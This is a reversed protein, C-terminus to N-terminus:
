SKLTENLKKIKADLSYDIVKNEVNIKVGALLAENINAELEIETNFLKELNEKITKLENEQMETASEVLALKINNKAYFAAEYHDKILTLIKTRRKQICLLLLNLTANSISDQFVAIIIKKKLEESISPNLLSSYLNENNNLAETVLSLQTLTEKSADIELLAEAYKKAILNEKSM